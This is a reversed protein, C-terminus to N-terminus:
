NGTCIRDTIHHPVSSDRLRQEFVPRQEPFRDLFNQVSRAATMSKFDELVSILIDFDSELGFQAVTMAIKENISKDYGFIYRATRLLAIGEPEGYDRIVGIVRSVLDLRDRQTKFAASVHTLVYRSKRLVKFGPDGISMDAKLDAEVIIARSNESVSTAWLEAVEIPPEAKPRRVYGVRKAQTIHHLKKHSTGRSSM